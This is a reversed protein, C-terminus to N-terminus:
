LMVLECSSFMVILWIECIEVCVSCESFLLCIESSFLLWSEKREDWWIVVRFLLCIWLRFVLFMMVIFLECYVEKLM